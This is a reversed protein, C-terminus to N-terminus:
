SAIGRRAYANGEASVQQDYRLMTSLATHFACATSSRVQYLIDSWCQRPAARDRVLQLVLAKAEAVATAEEAGGGRDGGGGAAACVARDLAATLRCYRRLFGLTRGDEAGHPALCDVLTAVADTAAAVAETATTTAAGSHDRTAPFAATLAKRAMADLAADDSARCLWGVAAATRGDRWAARGVTRAVQAATADLGARQCTHWVKLADREHSADAALAAAQRALLAQLVTRGHDPCHALYQTALPWLREHTAATVAWELLYHEQQTIGHGPLRHTLLRAAHPGAATMLGMVHAAFWAGLHRSSLSMLQQMEGAFAALMMAELLELGGTGCWVWYGGFEPMMM